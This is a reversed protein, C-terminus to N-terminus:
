NLIKNLKDKRVKKYFIQLEHYSISLIKDCPFNNIKTAFINLGCDIIGEDIPFSTYYLILDFEINKYDHKIKFYETLLLRYKEKNNKCDERNVFM